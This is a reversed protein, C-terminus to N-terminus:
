AAWGGEKEQRDGLGKASVGSIQYPTATALHSPLPLFRSLSLRMNCKEAWEHKTQAGREIECGASGEKVGRREVGMNGSQM